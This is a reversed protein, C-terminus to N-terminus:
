QLSYSTSFMNTLSLFSRLIRTYDLIAAVNYIIADGLMFAVKDGIGYQVNLRKVIVIDFFSAVVKLIATFWFARRFPGRSLYTQFLSVGVIGAISGAIATYTLYYTYEFHPGDHLCIPNATFFYDIAGSISLYSASSLFMYLNANGLKPPLWFYGMIALAVSVVLSASAQVTTGPYLPSLGVVLAGLTM